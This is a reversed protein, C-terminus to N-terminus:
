ISPFLAFYIGFCFLYMEQFTVIVKARVSPVVFLAGGNFFVGWFNMQMNQLFFPLKKTSKLVWESYVGALSTVTTGLLILLMGMIFKGVADKPMGTAKPHPGVM